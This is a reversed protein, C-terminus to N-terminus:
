SLCVKKVKTRPQLITPTQSPGVINRARVEFIYDTDSVLGQLTLTYNGPFKVPGYWTSRGSAQARYNVLYYLVPMGGDSEPPYVRFSVSSSTVKVDSVQFYLFSAAPLSYLCSSCVVINAVEHVSRVILSCTILITEQEVNRRSM